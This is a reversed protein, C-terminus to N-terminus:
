KRRRASQQANNKKWGFGTRWRVGLHAYTLLMPDTGNVVTHRSRAVELGGIVSFGGGFNIPVTARAFWGLSPITRPDRFKGFVINQLAVAVQDTIDEVPALLGGEMLSDLKESIFLINGLDVMPSPDASLRLGGTLEADISIQNNRGFAVLPKDGLFLKKFHVYVEADYRNEFFPQPRGADALAMQALHGALAEADGRLSLRVSEIQNSLKKSEARDIYRPDSVSVSGGIFKYRVFFRAMRVNRRQQRQLEQEIEIRLGPFLNKLWRPANLDFFAFASDVETDAIELESFGVIESLEGSFSANSIGTTTEMGFEFAQASLWLPFVLFGFGCFLRIKKIM